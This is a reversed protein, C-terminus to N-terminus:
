SVPSMSTCVRWNVATQPELAEGAGGEVEARGYSAFRFVMGVIVVQLAIMFFNGAVCVRRWM